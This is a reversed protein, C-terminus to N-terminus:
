QINSWKTPNAVNSHYYASLVLQEYHINRLYHAARVIVTSVLETPRPKTM